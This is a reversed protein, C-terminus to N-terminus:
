IPVSAGDEAIEAHWGDERLRARLAESATREGHVLYVRKPRREFGEMWRILDHRDAHASLGDVVEIHARVSVSRGHIRVSAAGDQLARGRTGAAQFGVLLVTARREPLWRALHHLIRGGSAMGSASIIIVPGVMESLSKSQEVTRAFTLNACRLGSAELARTDVDHEEPHDMYLATVDIAMPSDVFVPLTPISGREELERIRWLLEQTRGVAFAPILLPGGREAAAAIMAALPGDPDGPHDRDGYTSEVLLTDAEPIMEPNRLIPRHWGGLDGSFALRRSRPTDIELDVTASGLIHGAIRFTVRVDPGIGFPQHYPHRAVLQLVQRADDMTYLPLAPHHKSYGHRNAHAAQEEQLYAADPLLVSLLDATGPTCYIPGRFGQKFLLPLAGSHDIHGHSLVVGDVDSPDFPLARWNRERLPKLGQFLGCDLLVHQRGTRVLHKSGTVTEAGGHFTVAPLTDDMAGM